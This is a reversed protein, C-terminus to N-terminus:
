MTHHFLPCYDRARHDINFTKPAVWLIGPTSKAHDVVRAACRYRSFSLPLFGIMLLVDHPIAVRMMAPTVFALKVIGIFYARLHAQSFVQSAQVTKASMTRGKAVARTVM